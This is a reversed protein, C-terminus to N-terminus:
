IPVQVPVASRGFRDACAKVTDEFRAHERDLKNVVIVRAPVELERAYGWTRDSQVEIGSVADLVLLATDAVSLGVKADYLFNAFGPTGILNVKAGAHLVHALGIRISLKRAHEDDGSDTVTTGAATSGLRQLQGASFLLAEVLSTKGAHGHGILAVNRIGQTEQEKM